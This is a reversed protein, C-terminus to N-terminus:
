SNSRSRCVSKEPPLDPPRNNGESSSNEVIQQSGCLWLSQHLWYLLHKEPVRKSKQHDLLYKSSGFSIVCVFICVFIVSSYLLLFPWGLALLEYGVICYLFIMCWSWTPNLRPVCPNKLIQLDILIVCWMLLSFFLFSITMEISAYFVKSLIWCGYTILFFSYLFHAYFTCVEIYSLGYIIFWALMMSLSPFSFANGRLDPVLCPHGSEGSKNLM